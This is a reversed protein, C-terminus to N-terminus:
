KYWVTCSILDQHIPHTYLKWDRCHFNILYLTLGYVMYYPYVEQPVHVYWHNYSFSIMLFLSGCVSFLVIQLEIDYYLKVTYDYSIFLFVDLAALYIHRGCQGTNYIM